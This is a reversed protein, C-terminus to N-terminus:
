IYDFFWGVLSRFQGAPQLWSCRLLTVVHIQRGSVNRYLPTTKLSQAVSWELAEKQVAIRISVLSCALRILVFLTVTTKYGCFCISLIQDRVFRRM